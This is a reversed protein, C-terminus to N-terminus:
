PVVICSPCCARRSCMRASVTGVSNAIDNAGNSWALLTAFCLMLSVNVDGGNLESFASVQEVGGMATPGVTGKQALQAM